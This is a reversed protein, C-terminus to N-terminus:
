APQAKTLKRFEREKRIYWSQAAAGCLGKVGGQEAFFGWLKKQYEAESMKSM